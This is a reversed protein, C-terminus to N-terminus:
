NQLFPHQLCEQANFRSKYNYTLMRKLFNNIEHSEQETYDTQVLIDVIDEYDINRNKLIRGKMDFFSESYECNLAIERPMKGLKQYMQYLHNRDREISKRLKKVDFLYENTILEFAICGVTWIDAKTTYDGEIINEPCRYSRLSIIEQILKGEIEGNGFDIIKVRIDQLDERTYADYNNKDIYDDKDREGDSQNNNNDLDIEKISSKNKERKINYEHLKNLVFKSFIKYIKDKAKRKANKKKVRNMESYNEPLNYKMLNTIIEQPKLENFWDILDRIPKPYKTMLINEFKLDTHIVNKRHCEDLGSLIDRLIVKTLNLPLLEDEYVKYIALLSDGLLEMILCYYCQNSSTWTFTDYLKSIRSDPNGLNGIRNYMKIEHQADEFYKPLQMKMAYFKDNVIDYVLWVKSFTGKGLYKICLYKNNFVRGVIGESVEDEDDSSLSADSDSEIPKHYRKSQARLILRHM